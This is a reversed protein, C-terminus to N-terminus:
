TYSQPESLEGVNLHMIVNYWMFAGQRWVGLLYIFINMGYGDIGKM